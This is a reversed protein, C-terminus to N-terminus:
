LQTMAKIARSGPRWHRNTSRDELTESLVKVVVIEDAPDSLRVAVTRGGLREPIRNFEAAAMSAPLPQRGEGQHAILEAIWAPLARNYEEPEIDDRAGAINSIRTQAAEEVAGLLARSASPHACIGSAVDFYNRARGSWLLAMVAPVGLDTTLDFAMVQFGAGLVQDLCRRANPDAIDQLAIATRASHHQAGTSWLTSADREILECLAHVVAEEYSFGAALGNSSQSFPLPADSTPVLAVSDIPVYAAAGKAICQGLVWTMELSNDVQYDRPLWRTPVFYDLGTARLQDISATIRPAVPAEAVAYEIAEMIASLQAAIDDGGKGQNVALTRSNPRVAAFCPIGITDLGTQQAVRTIGFRNPEPRLRALAADNTFRRHM